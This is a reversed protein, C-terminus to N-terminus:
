IVNQYKNFVNYVEPLISVPDVPILTNPRGYLDLGNKVKDKISEMNSFEPLNLEAHATNQIKTKISEASGWYSLHYGSYYLKYFATRNDRVWQPGHQLFLKNKAIATGPWLLDWKQNFNYYFLDQLSLVADQGQNLVDIARDIGEITPIEDLDSMMMICDEDFMEYGRKLNNRQANDMLMQPCNPDWKTPKISFDYKSPDTDYPLYLVKDLYKKYRPMANLFNFPKLNGTHTYNTESILFYDVKNYLYELRGELINYENFFLFSDLIMAHYKNVLKTGWTSNSGM